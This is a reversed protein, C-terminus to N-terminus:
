KTMKQNIMNNLHLEPDPASEDQALHYTMVREIKTNTAKEIEEMDIHKGESSTFLIGKRVKVEEVVEVEEKEEEVKEEEEVVVEEKKNSKSTELRDLTSAMKALMEEMKGMKEMQKSERELVEKIQPLNVNPATAQLVGKLSEVEKKTEVLEKSMKDEMELSKTLKRDVEKLSELFVKELKELHHTVSEEKEEKNNAHNNASKGM